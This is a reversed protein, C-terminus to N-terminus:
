IFRALMELPASCESAERVMLWSVMSSLPVYSHETERISSRAPVELDRTLSKTRPSHRRRRGPTAPLRPLFLHQSFNHRRPLPLGSVARGSWSSLCGRVGDAQWPSSRGKYHFVIRLQGGMAPLKWPLPTPRKPTARPSRGM